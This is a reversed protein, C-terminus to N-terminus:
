FDFKRIFRLKIESTNDSFIRGYFSVGAPLSLSGGYYTARPDKLTSQQYEVSLVRSIKKRINVNLGMDGRPSTQTSFTIEVGLLGSLGSRVAGIYGLQKFLTRAVPIIGEATSGIILKTLIERTSMPPESWVVLQPDELNGKLSIFISLERGPNVISLDIFREERGGERVVTVTGGRVLFRRGFYTLEGSLLDVVVTYDPDRASGSVWGRVKAYIYGEPLKIRIPKLSDFRVDLNVPPASGRKGEGSRMKGSLEVDGSLLLDLQLDAEKLDRVELWGESTARLSLLLGGSRYLLPLERSVVYLYFNRLDLTGLNATVGIGDRWLTAFAALQRNLLRMELHLDMPLSLYRSFTVVRGKRSIEASLVGKRYTVRYRLTGEARGGVPTATFFSLDELDVQGEAATFFGDGATFGALVSGRVAGSVALVIDLKRDKLSYSGKEQLVTVARRGMLYLEVPNLSIRGGETDGEIEAGGLHLEGVGYRWVAPEVSLRYRGNRYRASGKLSYPKGLLNLDARLLLSGENRDGEFSYILTANGRRLVGETRLSLKGLDATLRGNLLGDVAYEGRLIGEEVDGRLYGKGLPVGPISGGKLTLELVGEPAGDVVIDARLACSLRVGEREVSIDRLNVSLDTSGRDRFVTVRGEVTLSVDRVTRSFDRLVVEALLGDKTDGKLSGTFGEGRLSLEIRSDELEVRYDGGGLPLDRYHLDEFRGAGSLMMGRGATLVGDHSLFLSVGSGVLLLDRLRLRATFERGKLSGSLHLYGPQHVLLEVRGAPDRYSYSVDLLVDSFSFSDVMLTNSRLFLDVRGRDLDVSVDGSVWAFLPREIRLLASDVPFRKVKLNLRRGPMLRLTYDGELDNSRISGAVTLGQAPSFLLTGESRLQRFTRRGKLDVGDTHASFELKLERYSLQGSGQFSVPSIGVTPHDMERTRGTFLFSGKLEGESLVGRVSVEFLRSSVETERVEVWRDRLILSGVRVTYKEGGSYVHLTGRLKGDRLVARDVSVSLEGKRGGTFLFRRVEANVERLFSPILVKPKGESRKGEDGGTLLLFGDSVRIEPRETLRLELERLNLFLVGEKRPLMLQLDKVSIRLPSVGVSLGGLQYSIGRHTLYPKVALFYATLLVLLVLAVYRM